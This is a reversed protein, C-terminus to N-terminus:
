GQHIKVLGHVAGIARDDEPVPVQEATDDLSGSKRVLAPAIFGSDGQPRYEVDRAVKGELLQLVVGEDEIRLSLVQEGAKSFGAQGHRSGSLTM